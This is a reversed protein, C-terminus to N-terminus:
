SAIIEPPSPPRGCRCGTGARKRSQRPPLPVIRRRLRVLDFPGFRAFARRILAATSTGTIQVPPKWVAETIAAAISRPRSRCPTSPGGARRWCRDRACRRARGPGRRDDRAGIAVPAQGVDDLMRQAAVVLGAIRAALRHQGFHHGDEIRRRVRRGRGAVSARAASPALKPIPSCSASARSMPRLDGFSDATESRSRWHCWSGRRSAIPLSISIRLSSRSFFRCSVSSGGSSFRGSAPVTSGSM